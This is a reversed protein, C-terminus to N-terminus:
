ATRKIDLTKRRRPGGFYKSQARDLFNEDEDTEESETSHKEKVDEFSCGEVRLDFDDCLELGLKKKPKSDRPTGQKDSDQKEPGSQSALSRKKEEDSAFSSRNEIDEEISADLEHHEESGNEEDIQNFNLISDKPQLYNEREKRLDDNDFPDLAKLSAKTVQKSTSKRTAMKKFASPTSLDEKFKNDMLKNIANHTIGFSPANEEIDDSIKFTKSISTLKTAPIKRKLAEINQHVGDPNLSYFKEIMTSSGKIRWYGVYDLADLIQDDSFENRPDINDRISGEYLTFSGSLKFINKNFDEDAIGSISKGDLSIKGSVLWSPDVIRYISRLLANKGSGRSGVIAIKQGKDAHLTVGALMPVTTVPNIMYLNSVDVRRQVVSSGNMVGIGLIKRRESVEDMVILEKIKDLSTQLVSRAISSSILGGVTFVLDFSITLKIREHTDQYSPDLYRGIVGNLLVFIPILLAYGNIRTCSWRDSLNGQHGKCNQYIENIMMFADRQYTIDHSNRFFRLGKCLDLVVHVLYAQNGLVVTRLARSVPSLKVLTYMIMLYVLIIGPGTYFTGYLAIGLVIHLRVLQQFLMFMSTGLNEDLNSFETVFASLLRENPVKHFFELSHGLLGKIMYVFLKFSIQRVYRVLVFSFIIISSLTALSIALYDNMHTSFWIPSAGYKWSSVYWSFTYNLSATLIILFLLLVPRVWGSNFLFFRIVTVTPTRNKASNMDVKFYLNNELIRHRLKKLSNTFEESRMYALQSQSRQRGFDTIKSLYRPAPLRICAEPSETSPGVLFRKLPDKDKDTLKSTTLIDTVANIEVVIIRDTLYAIDEFDTLIVFTKKKYKELIDVLATQKYKAPLTDFFREVLFIDADSYLMRAMIILKRLDEPLEIGNNSIITKEISPLGRFIGDLGVDRLVEWYRADNYVRGLLINQVITDEVFHVNETQYYTKGNIFFSGRIIELEQAVGLLLCEAIARPNGIIGITEGPNVRLNVSKLTITDEIKAMRNSGKGLKVRTSRNSPTRSKQQLFENDTSYSM